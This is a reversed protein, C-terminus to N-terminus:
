NLEQSDIEGIFRAGKTEVEALCQTIEHGLVREEQEADLRVLRVLAVVDSAFDRLQDTRTKM